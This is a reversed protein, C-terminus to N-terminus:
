NSHLQIGVEGKSSIGPGKELYETTKVRKICLELKNGICRIIYSSWGDKKLLHQLTSLDGGIFKTWHHENDTRLVIM